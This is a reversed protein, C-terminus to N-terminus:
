QENFRITQKDYEELKKLEETYFNASNKNLTKQYIKGFDYGFIVSFNLLNNSNTKEENFANIVFMLQNQDYGQRLREFILFKIYLVDNESVTKVANKYRDFVNNIAERWHNTEKPNFRNYWLVFKSYKTKFDLKPLDQIQNSQNTSKKNNLKTSKEASFKIEENYKKIKIKHHNKPDFVITLENNIKLNYNYKSCALFLVNIQTKYKACLVILNINIESQNSKKAAILLLENIVRIVSKPQNRLLSELFVPNFYYM